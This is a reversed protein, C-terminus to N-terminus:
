SGPVPLFGSRSGTVLDIESYVVSKNKYSLM